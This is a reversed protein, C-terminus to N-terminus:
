LLVALLIILIIVIAIWLFLVSSISATSGCLNCTARSITINYYLTTSFNWFVCAMTCTHRIQESEFVVLMVFIYRSTLVHLMTMIFFSETCSSDLVTFSVGFLIQLSIEIESVNEHVKQRHLFLYFCNSLSCNGYVPEVSSNIKKAFSFKGLPVLKRLSSICTNKPLLKQFFGIRLTSSFIRLNDRRLIEFLWSNLRHNFSNLM